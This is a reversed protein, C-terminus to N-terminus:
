DAFFKVKSKCVPCIELGPKYQVLAGCKPCQLEIEGDGLENIMYQVDPPINPKVPEPTPMEPEKPPKKKEKIKKKEIKDKISENVRKIVEDAVDAPVGKFYIRAATKKIFKYATYECEIKLSRGGPGVREANTIDSYFISVGNYKEGILDAKKKVLSIFIVRVNTVYLTGSKFEKSKIGKSVESIKINDASIIHKEGEYLLPQGDNGWFRDM